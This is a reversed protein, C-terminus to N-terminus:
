AGKKPDYKKAPAPAKPAAPAAGPAGPVTFVGGEVAKLILALVLWPWHRALYTRWLWLFLGEGPAPKM